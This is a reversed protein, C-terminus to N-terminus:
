TQKHKNVVGAPEWRRKYVYRNTQTQKNTNTPRGESLCNTFVCRDGNALHRANTFVDETDGVQHDGLAVREEGVCLDLHKGDEADVASEHLEHTGVVWIQRLLKRRLATRCWAM